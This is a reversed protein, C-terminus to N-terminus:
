AALARKGLLTGVGLVLLLLTVSSAEPATPAFGAVNATAGDILSIGGTTFSTANTEIVLIDSSNGPGIGTPGLTFGITTGTGNRDVSSPQVTSGANDGDTSTFLSNYGVDTTFGAFNATTVRGVNETGTSSDIQIEFDLCGVCLGSGAVDTRLVYADYTGSITLGTFPNTASFTGGDISALVTVASGFSGVPLADPSGSTGPALTNAKAAPVAVLAAFFLLFMMATGKKM